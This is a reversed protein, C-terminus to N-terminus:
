KRKLKWYILIIVTTFLLVAGVAILAYFGFYGNLAIVSSTESLDANCLGIIALVIAAASFLFITALFVVLWKGRRKPEGNETEMAQLESNEGDFFADMSVSFLACLRKLKEADLIAKDNEWNSVTQRSVDMREALEEQSLGHAERLKYIKEGLTM